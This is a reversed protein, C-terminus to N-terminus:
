KFEFAEGGHSMRQDLPAVAHFEEAVLGGLLELAVGARVPTRAAPRHGVVAREGRRHDVTPIDEGGLAPGFVLHQQRGAGLDGEGAPEIEIIMAQDPVLEVLDM